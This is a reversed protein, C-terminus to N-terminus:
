CKTTRLDLSKILIDNFFVHVLGDQLQDPVLGVALHRYPKGVRLRRHQYSIRGSEDVKRIAAGAPFILPPLTEPFPRDSPYYHEAPTDLGLAEHPREWNYLDRFSDFGIQCTPFDDLTLRHLLEDDLTRHFREEKGQTQPHYPRGHSVRIGLRLLWITLLTDPTDLEDGWPSGNDMLMREPLGYARFLTTLHKKVTQHTEDPCAKLGVLFRSHDDLVGLPHCRDGNGLEFDGKFDMQWLENPYAMEFRQYPQRKASEAADLSNHRRLIETITSPAPVSQHGQNELWRKLKRGGWAPHQRRADLVLQEVSGLTKDPSHRPRRARDQLGEEGEVLYRNRWKYGTKRSIGYERCLASMNVEEALARMVFEERLSMTDVAKWPM